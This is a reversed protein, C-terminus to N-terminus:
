PVMSPLPPLHSVSGATLISSVSDISSRRSDFSTNNSASNSIGPSSMGSRPTNSTPMEYPVKWLPGQIRGDTFDGNAGLAIGHVSPYNADGTHPSVSASYRPIPLTM